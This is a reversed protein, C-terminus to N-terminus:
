CSYILSIFFNIRHVANTLLGLWYQSSLKAARVRAILIKGVPSDLKQKVLRSDVMKMPLKLHRFWNGYTQVITKDVINHVGSVFPMKNQVSDSHNFSASSWGPLITYLSYLLCARTIQVNHKATCWLSKLLQKVACNFYDFTTFIVDDQPPMENRITPGFCSCLNNNEPTAMTSTIHLMTVTKVQSHVAYPKRPQAVFMMINQLSRNFAPAITFPTIKYTSDHFAAVLAITFCCRKCTSNHFLTHRCYTRNHFVMVQCYTSNHSHRLTAVAWHMGIVFNNVALEPVTHGTNWVYLNWAPTSFIPTLHWHNGIEPAYKKYCVWSSCSVHM